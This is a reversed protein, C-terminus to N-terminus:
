WRKNKKKLQLTQIKTEEDYLSLVPRTTINLDKLLDKLDHDGSIEKYAHVPRKKVTTKKV